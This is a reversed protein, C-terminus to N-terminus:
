REDYIDICSSYPTKDVNEKGFKNYKDIIDNYPCILDFNTYSDFLLGQDEPPTFPENYKININRAIKFLNFALYIVLIYYFTNGIYYITDNLTSENYLKNNTSHIKSSNINIIYDFM